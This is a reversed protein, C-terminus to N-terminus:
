RWETVEDLTRRPRAPPAEAPLGLSIAAVLQGSGGLWERLETYAFFIDCIWLGGLGLGTAALLMNQICAGVSQLNALEYVRGEFDEPGAMENLPNLIFVTVPAQGMIAASHRAGALHHASGPLLPAAQERALGKHIIDMMAAKAGGQVVVFRWPQRNKASPAAIGARLVQEITEKPLPAGQFQRISRRGQIAQELEM